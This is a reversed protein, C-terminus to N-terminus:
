YDLFSWFLAMKASKHYMKHCTENMIVLSRIEPWNSALGGYIFTHSPESRSVEKKESELANQPPFAGFGNGPWLHITPHIESDFPNRKRLTIFYSKVGNKLSKIFLFREIKTRPNSFMLLLNWLPWFSVRKRCLIIRLLGRINHLTKSSLSGLISESSQSVSGAAPARYVRGNIM